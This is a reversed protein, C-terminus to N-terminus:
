EVPKVIYGEQRLLEIVGEKGGLHAAGMAFFTSQKNILKKIKQIWTRNRANLLIEEQSQFDFESEQSILRLKEIDQSKYVEVLQGFEEKAKPLDRILSLLMEAQKQYPISDFIALQQEITELGKVEKGEKHAMGMLNLEYSEPQCGLIRNFLISSLFFPKTQNFLSVNLGVSDKFFQSVLGYDEESLLQSLRTEYKMGMNKSMAAMLEPDDMDIELYLEKSVALKEPLLSPYNVDKPCILHITGFLFSPEKLDKGSIEWFISHKDESSNQSLCPLISVASLILVSVAVKLTKGAFIM